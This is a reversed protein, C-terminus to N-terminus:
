AKENLEKDLETQIIRFVRELYEERQTDRIAVQDASPEFQEIDDRSFVGKEEILTEVTELRDRMVSVESVLAVVIALLKDIAPDSFYEPRKGKAIRELKIKNEEELNTM